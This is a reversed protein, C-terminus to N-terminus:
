VLLVGTELVDAQRVHVSLEGLERGPGLRGAALDLRSLDDGGDDLLAALLETLTGRGRM